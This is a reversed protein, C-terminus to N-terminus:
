SILDGGRYLGAADLTLSLTLPQKQHPSSDGSSISAYCPSRWFCGMRYLPFVL